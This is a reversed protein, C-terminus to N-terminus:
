TARIRSGRRSRSTPSASTRARSSRRRRTSASSECTRAWPCGPRRAFPGPSISPTSARRGRWRPSGSRTRPTLTSTTSRAACGDRGRGERRADRHRAISALLERVLGGVALPTVDDPAALERAVSRALVGARQDRGHVVELLAPKCCRLEGEALLPAASIIILRADIEDIRNAHREGPPKTIVTNLPSSYRKSSGLATEVSGELTVGITAVEHEHPSLRLGAPFRLDSVILGGLDVNRGQSYGAWVPEIDKLM